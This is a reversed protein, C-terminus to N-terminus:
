YKGVIGDFSFFFNLKVESINSQYIAHLSLIPGNPLRLKRLMPKSQVEALRDNNSNTVKETSAFIRLQRVM